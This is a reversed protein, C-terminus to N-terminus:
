LSRNSKDDKFTSGENAKEKSITPLENDARANVIKEPMKWM